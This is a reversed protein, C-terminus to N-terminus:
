RHVRVASLRIHEMTHVATETAQFFQFFDSMAFPPSQFEMRHDGDIHHVLVKRQACGEIVVRINAQPRHFLLSKAKLFSPTQVSQPQRPLINARGDVQFQQRTQLQRLESLRYEQKIWIRLLLVRQSKQQV